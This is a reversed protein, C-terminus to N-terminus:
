QVAAKFANLSEPDSWVRWDREKLENFWIWAKIEPYKPIQVTLADTIWAAKQTGEASAFSFIFIPKKYVKLRELPGGFAQDFTQWPYNFNFGDIGVYDVYTDGPYYQEFKNQPTDPLSDNNPAWGFKVNDVNKFLDHIRRWAAIHKEPTNGNVTGGWPFWDGNMESFPVLIVPGKFSKADAAFQSIYSDWDGRLIADYNFRPQNVKAVTYDTVEWFILLTQSKKKLQDTLYFPFLNENGWHIFVARYQATKGVKSEFIDMDTERWGVYAGWEKQSFKPASTRIMNTSIVTSTGVALIEPACSSIRASETKSFSGRRGSASTKVQYNYVGAGSEFSLDTYSTNTTNKVIQLWGSSSPAQRSLTYSDAGTVPTWSIIARPKGDKCDVNISSMVSTTLKRANVIAALQDSVISYGYFFPAIFVGAVFFIAILLISKM